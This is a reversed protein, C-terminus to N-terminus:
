CLDDVPSDAYDNPGRRRGTIADAVCSKSVGFKDALTTYSWLGDAYMSRMEEVEADTLKANPNKEGAPASM